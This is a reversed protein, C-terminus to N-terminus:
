MNINLKVSTKLHNKAIEDTFKIFHEDELNFKQLRIKKKKGGFVIPNILPISTHSLGMYGVWVQIEDLETSTTVDVHHTPFCLRCRSHM